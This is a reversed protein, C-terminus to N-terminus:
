IFGECRIKPGDENEATLGVNWGSFEDIMIRKTFRPVLRRSTGSSLTRQFEEWSFRASHYCLCLSSAAAAAALAAPLGAGGRRTGRPAQASPVSVGGGEEELGEARGGSPFERTEGTM